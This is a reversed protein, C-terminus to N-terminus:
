ASISKKANRPYDTSIILRPRHHLIILSITNRRTVKIPVVLALQSRHEGCKNNKERHINSPTQPTPSEVVVSM